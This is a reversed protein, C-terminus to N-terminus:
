KMIPSHRLALATAIYDYALSIRVRPCCVIVMNPQPPAINNLAGQCPKVNESQLSVLGLRYSGQLCNSVLTMLPSLVM